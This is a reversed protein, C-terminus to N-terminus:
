SYSFLIYTHAPKLRSLVCELSANSWQALPEDAGDECTFEVVTNLPGNVQWAYAWAESLIVTDCDDDVDFPSFETVTVTYGLAAATAIFYAPTAGGLGTVRALLAARRQTETQGPGVCPDPLGFAAEWDALLESVTRPDTEDLLNRARQDVRALEEALGLVFKSLVSDSDVNWAAGIPLLQKLQRAYANVDM